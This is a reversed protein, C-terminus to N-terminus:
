QQPLYGNNTDLFLTDNFKNNFTFSLIKFKTKKLAILGNIADMKEFTSKGM